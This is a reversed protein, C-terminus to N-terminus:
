SIRYWGNDSPNCVFGVGQGAALTTPYGPPTGGVAVSITLATIAQTTSFRFEQGQFGSSCSPFAVTLAALTGAPAILATHTTQAITVTQGTTPSVKVIASDIVTGMSVPNNFIWTPTAANMDFSAQIAGAYNTFVLNSGSIGVKGYGGNSGTNKVNLQNDTTFSGSTNISGTAVIAGGSLTVLSGGSGIKVRGNTPALALTAATGDTADTWTLTVTNRGAGMFTAATGLTASANNTAAAATSYGADVIALATPVGSGNVATIQLIAGPVTGAVGSGVLYEGVQHGGQDGSVYTAASVYSGKVDITLGSTTPIIQGNGIDTEGTGKVVIGPTRWAENTFHIGGWAFGNGFVQPRIPAAATTAPCNAIGVTCGNSNPFVQPFADSFSTASTGLWEQSGGGLPLLSRFPPLNQGASATASGVSTGDYTPQQSTLWVGIRGAFANVDAATGVNGWDQSLRAFQGATQILASAGYMVEFDMEFSENNVWWTAGPSLIAYLNMGNNQGYPNTMSTGGVNHSPSARGELCTLFNGNAKGVAGITGCNLSMAESFGYSGTGGSSTSLSLIPASNGQARHDSTDTVYMQNYAGVGSGWTGSVNLGISMTPTVNGGGPTISPVYSGPAPTNWFTRQMVTGGTPNLILQQTAPLDLTAGTAGNANTSTKPAFTAGTSGQTAMTGLGLNTRATPISALDSLNNSKLAGANTLYAAVQNALTPITVSSQAFAPSAIFAALFAIRIKM